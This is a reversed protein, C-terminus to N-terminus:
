TVKSMDHSLREVFISFLTIVPSVLPNLLRPRSLMYNSLIVADDPNARVRNWAMRSLPRPIAKVYVRLRGRLAGVTCHCSM